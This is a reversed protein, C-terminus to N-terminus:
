EDNGDKKIIVKKNIHRSTKPSSITILAIRRPTRANSIEKDIQAIDAKLEEIEKDTKAVEERIEKIEKDVKSMKVDEVENFEGIENNEDEIENNEEIEANIKQNLSTLHSISTELKLDLDPVTFESIEEHVSEKKSELVNKLTNKDGDCKWADRAETDELIPKTKPTEGPSKFYKLLPSSKVQDKKAKKNIKNSNETKKIDEVINLTTKVRKPTIVEFTTSNTANKVPSDTIEIVENKKSENEVRPARRVTLVNIKEESKNTNTAKNAWQVLFTSKKEESEAKKVEDVEMPELEDLATVNLVENEKEEEIVEEEKQYVDGLEGEMFSLLTCFGDSSSAVLLLGDSSWSLDTIRTYHVNKLRAFPFRQQTDFLFLDTETAVAFIMRYPLNVAPKPGIDTLEYLIPCFKAALTSSNEFRFVGVPEPSHLTFLYACKFNLRNEEAEVFGSPTIFLNGDPSFGFRRFFSKFTDDHFYKVEKNYLPNTEPVPLLGKIIKSKVQKTSVDIIRCYRDSSLTAFYQGKPDFCVGQVFGKHDVFIHDWKGKSVDWLIATNDISGSVIKDSKPSWCIDYVDEKHGRLTKLALYSVKKPEDPDIKPVWVFIIGDDDASALMSGDPAWRVSNVSKQHRTIDCEVQVHVSGVSNVKGTWVVVHYDAGGTAIRYLNEVNIPNVDICLVPERNHWSIEPIVCKM